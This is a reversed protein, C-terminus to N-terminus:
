YKRDLRVNSLYHTLFFKKLNERNKKPLFELVVSLTRFKRLLSLIEWNNKSLSIYSFSKTSWPTAGKALLHQVLQTNLMTVAYFLPTHGFLDSANIDAGLDILKHACETHGNQLACHFAIQHCRDYEYVLLNSVEKTMEVIKETKGYKSAEIFADAKPHQYPMMPFERVQDLPIGFSKLKSVFYVVKKLFDKKSESQIRRSPAITNEIILHARRCIINGYETVAKANNNLASHQQSELKNILSNLSLKLPLNDQEESVENKQMFFGLPLSKPNVKSTIKFDLIPGKEQSDSYESHKYATKMEPYRRNYTLSMRKKCLDKNLQSKPPLIGDIAQSIRHSQKPTSVTNLAPSCAKSRIPAPSLQKYAKSSAKKVDNTTETQQPMSLIPSKNLSEQKAAVNKLM